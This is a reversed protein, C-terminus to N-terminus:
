PISLFKWYFTKYSSVYVSQTLSCRIAQDSPVPVSFKLPETQANVYTAQYALILSSSNAGSYIKLVVTEGNVMNTTDVVLIYTGATTNSAFLYDESGDATQNGSTVVTLAHATGSLLLLLIGIITLLRRVTPM